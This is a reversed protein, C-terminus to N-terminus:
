AAGGIVHIRGLARGGGRVRRVAAVKPQPILAKAHPALALLPLLLWFGPQEVVGIEVGFSAPLVLCVISLGLWIRVAAQLRNPLAANRDFSSM